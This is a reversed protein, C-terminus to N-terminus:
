FLFLKPRVCNRTRCIFSKVFFTKVSLLSLLFFPVLLHEFNIHVWPGVAWRLNTISSHRRCSHISIRRLFNIWDVFTLTFFEVIKDLMKTLFTSKLWGIILFFTTTRVFALLNRFLSFLKGFDVVHANAIFTTVFTWIEFLPADLWSCSKALPEIWLQDLLFIDHCCWLSLIFVFISLYLFLHKIVWTANTIYYFILTLRTYIDFILCFHWLHAFNSDSRSPEWGVNLLPICLKLM